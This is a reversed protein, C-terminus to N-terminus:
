TSPQRAQLYAELARVVYLQVTVDAEAAAIRVARVLAVPLRVNFQKTM